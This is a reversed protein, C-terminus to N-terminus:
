SEGFCKKEVETQEACLFNCLADKSYQLFQLKTLTFIKYFHM